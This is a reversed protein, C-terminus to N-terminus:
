HNNLIFNYNADSTAVIEMTLADSNIQLDRPLTRYKECQVKAYRPCITTWTQGDIM